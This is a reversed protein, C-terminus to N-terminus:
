KVTNHNRGAFSFEEYSALVKQISFSVKLITTKPYLDWIGRKRIDIGYGPHGESSLIYVLLGNGCGLDVFSQLKTDQSKSREQRWILLLYTAIAM